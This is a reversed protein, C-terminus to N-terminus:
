EQYGSYQYRHGNCSRRAALATAATFWLDAYLGDIVRNLGVLIQIDIQLEGIAAVKGTAPQYDDPRPDVLDGGDIGEAAIGNNCLQGGVAARIFSLQFKRLRILAIEMVIVMDVVRQDKFKRHDICISSGAIGYRRRLDNRDARLTRFFKLAKSLFINSKKM